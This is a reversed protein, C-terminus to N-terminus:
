VVPSPKLGKCLGIVHWCLSHRFDEERVLGAGKELEELVKCCLGRRRFADVIQRHHFNLLIHLVMVIRFPKHHTLDRTAQHCLVHDGGGGVREKHLNTSAGNRM